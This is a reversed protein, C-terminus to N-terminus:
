GDNSKLVLEDKITLTRLLTSLYNLLCFFQVISIILYVRHLRYFKKYETLELKVPDIYKSMMNHIIFLGILSLFLFGLIFQSMKFRKHKIYDREKLLNAYLLCITVVGIINLIKTVRQTIMGVTEHDGLVAHANSIVFASYFLFGGFWLCFSLLTLYKVLTKTMCHFVIRNVTSM